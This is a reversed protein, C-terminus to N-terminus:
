TTPSREAEGATPPNPKDTILDLGINYGSAKLQAKVQERREMLDALQRQRYYIEFHLELLLAKLQEENM